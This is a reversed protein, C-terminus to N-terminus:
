PAFYHSKLCSADTGAPLRHFGTYSVNDFAGGDVETWTWEESFDVETWLGDDILTWLLGSFDM